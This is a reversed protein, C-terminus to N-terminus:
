RPARQGHRGNRPLYPPKRGFREAPARGARPGTVRVQAREWRPVWRIAGRPLSGLRVETTGTARARVAPGAVPRTRSLYWPTHRPREVEDRVDGVHLRDPAVFRWIRESSTGRGEPALPAWGVADPGVRWEVWAPAWRTGPVWRWRGDYFWRGYHSVAWGWPEAAIFTPGRETEVWRGRAYPEYDADSPTWVWGLRRDMSWTGYPALPEYFASVHAVDGEDGGDGLAVRPV